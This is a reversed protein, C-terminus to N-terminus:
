LGATSIIQLATQNNVMSHSDVVAYNQQIFDIQNGGSYNNVWDVTMGYTRTACIIISCNANVFDSLSQQLHSNPDGQSEIGVKHGNIVMIAKVDITNPTLLNVMANPYKNQLLQFVLKITETKGSSGKGKLAVFHSM